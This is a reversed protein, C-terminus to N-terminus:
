IAKNYDTSDSVSACAISGCRVVPNAIAEKKGDKGTFPNPLETRAFNGRTEIWENYSGRREPLLKDLDVAVSLEVPTAYHTPSFAIQQGSTDRSIKGTKGKSPKPKPPADTIKANDLLDVIEGTRCVDGISVDSSLGGAIGLCILMGVDFEDLIDMTAHSCETRGMTNQKVLLVSLDVSPVAVEFRVRQTTSLDSVFDFYSLATEFEEDLPVVVAVDFRKKMIGRCYTPRSCCPPM